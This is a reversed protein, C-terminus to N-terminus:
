SKIAGSTIGEIYLSSGGLFLILLPITAFIYGALQIGVDTTTQSWTFSQVAVIIVQKRVSDIIMLPWVYDNYFGIMNMIALTALIPKALPIAIKYYAQLENAGDIRASEFLATPQETIFTKCLLIGFVQGGSIWPLILAWWSNRLGFDQVLKYLPTLTLVNPIMLISLILLFLFKRGPFKLKAFVYGSMSALIISGITATGVTIISNFMNIYLWKVASIHNSWKIPNPL